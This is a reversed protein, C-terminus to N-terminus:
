VYLFFGNSGFMLCLYSWNWEMVVSCCGILNFFAHHCTIYQSHLVYLLLYVANVPLVVHKSKNPRHYSSIPFHKLVVACLVSARMQKEYELHM